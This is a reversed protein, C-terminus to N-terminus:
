MNIEGRMLAVMRAIHDTHALIEAETPLRSATYLGMAELRDIWDHRKEEDTRGSNECDEIVRIVERVDGDPLVFCEECLTWFEGQKSNPYYKNKAAECECDDKVCKPAQQSAM